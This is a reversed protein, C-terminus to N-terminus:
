ILVWLGGLVAPRCRALFINIIGWSATKREWDFKKDKNDEAAFFRWIKKAKEVKTEYNLNTLWYFRGSEAYNEIIKLINLM